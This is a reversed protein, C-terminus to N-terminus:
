SREALWYPSSNRGWTIMAIAAEIARGRSATRTPRMGDQQAARTALATAM